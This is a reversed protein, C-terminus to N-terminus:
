MRWIRCYMYGCSGQPSFAYFWDRRRMSARLVITRSAVDLGSERVSRKMESLVADFVKRPIVEGAYSQRDPLFDLQKRRVVPQYIARAAWVSKAGDPAPLGYWEM